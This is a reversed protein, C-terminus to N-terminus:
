NMKVADTEIRMWIKEAVRTVIGSGESSFSFMLPLGPVGCAGTEEVTAFAIPIRSM